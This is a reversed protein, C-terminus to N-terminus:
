ACPRAFEFLPDTLKLPGFRDQGRADFTEVRLNWLTWLVLTRSPTEDGRQFFRFNLIRRWSATLWAYPSKTRSGM